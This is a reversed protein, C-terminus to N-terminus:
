KKTCTPSWIVCARDAATGVGSHTDEDACDGSAEDDARGSQAEDTGDGSGSPSYYLSVTQRLAFKLIGQLQSSDSFTGALLRRCDLITSM